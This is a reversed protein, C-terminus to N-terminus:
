FLQGQKSSRRGRHRARHRHVSRQTIGVKRAIEQSSADAEDMKHVREAISRMMQRYTGGVYLPIDLRQGRQGDVAFHACLKAADEAGLAQVLWHDASPHAPLYVRTGGAHSALAIAAAEGVVEAVEALVGPLQESM